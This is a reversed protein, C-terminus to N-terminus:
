EGGNLGDLYAWLKEADGDQHCYGQMGVARAGDINRQLDDIFVCEEAKLGFREFLCEYIEANPKLMREEASVLIGSFHELYPIKYKFDHFRHGCNTLIYLRYGRDLLRKLVREIGQMPYLADLWWDAEVREGLERLQPDDMRDRCRNFYDHETMVGGDIIPGWEPHTFIADCLRRATQSDPAYRLCTQLPNWNLLVMGMDFVINRIM